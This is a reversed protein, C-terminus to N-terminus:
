KSTLSTLMDTKNAYLPSFLRTWKFYFFNYRRKGRHTNLVRVMSSFNLCFWFLFYWGSNQYQKISTVMKQNNSHLNLYFGVFGAKEFFLKNQYKQFLLGDPLISRKEKSRNVQRYRTVALSSIWHSTQKYKNTRIFSIYTYIYIYRYVHLSSQNRTM